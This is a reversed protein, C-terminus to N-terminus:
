SNRPAGYRLAAAALLYCGAGLLATTLFGFSIALATSLAGALVGAAGNIAWFWPKNREDLQMFGAPLALGLGAGALAILPVLLGIRAALPLGLASRFLPGMALSVLASLLPVIWLLGRLRAAPMHGALAAGLGAGALLAALVIAVAHSPHGVFLISAQIWPVELLMFGVGICAFYGSGLWFRPGREPRAFLVFPLFFLVLVAAALLALTTRLLSISQLNRDSPVADSADTGFDFLRSAQFFFPRDDTPPALDLGAATFSAGDDHMAMAVLSPGRGPLPPWQRDFGRALAVRDARERLAASLPQKGIILNGIFGGTLLLLHDRPSAAGHERLAAEALLALRVTEFPQVSDTWRCISLLGGPELRDLYTRLAEVTYLYNESLAYAGAATAAWSDVLSIQILDYRAQNGGLLGRTLQSRGEGLVVNVGPRRYINGSFAALPGTMLEVIASSLEVADVTHAGAALATVLDRGGGAGVVYVRAPVQLQHAASTVDFFLHELQEPRGELREVPTGASGDQDIWRQEHPRPEFRAGYGWGWPVDPRPSHIPREFVTIRATPTWRKFLPATAGQEDYTKSYRVRFPEGHLAAAILALGLLPSLWADFRRGSTRVAAQAAAALLPLVGLLALLRPTEIWSLCPVVLAAGLTAGLLDAAYMGAVATGRASMLLVCIAAGLTYMPVLMALMASALWATEGLGLAVVLPRANVLVVISLPIAAGSLWLSRLLARPSPPRQSLWVGSAGLGLMAISISLFAFHYWFVVSLLRTVAIQYLLASSSVLAITLRDVLAHREGVV